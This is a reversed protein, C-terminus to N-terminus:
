LERGARGLSRVLPDLLYDLVSREATVLFVEAQMGTTLAPIGPNGTEADPIVRGSFYGAGTNPDVIRDASIQVVKGEILPTSRANFATLRIRATQGPYVADIDNPDIRLEVM